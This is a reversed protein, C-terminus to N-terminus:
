HSSNHLRLVLCLDMQSFCTLTLLAPWPEGSGATTYHPVPQPHPPPCSSLFDLSVGPHRSCSRYWMVPPLASKTGNKKVIAGSLPSTDLLFRFTEILPFQTYTNALGSALIQLIGWVWPAQVSASGPSDIWCGLGWGPGWCPRHRHGRVM